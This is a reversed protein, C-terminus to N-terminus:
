RGAGEDLASREADAVLTAARPSLAVDRLWALTVPAPPLDHVPVAKIHPPLISELSQFSVHVATTRALVETMAEVTTMPHVRRIVTGGPTRPPVVKDWVYPPFDGPCRFADYQAAEEVSVTKREALPHDASVILARGDFSVPRSVAIDPEQLGYKVIMIELSRDRLPGFPDAVDYPVFEVEKLGHGAATIIRTALHPSGHIGFRLPRTADPTAATLPAPM